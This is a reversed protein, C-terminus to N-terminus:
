TKVGVIYTRQRNTSANQRLFSTYNTMIIVVSNSCLLMAFNSTM